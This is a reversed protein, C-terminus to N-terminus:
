TTGEDTACAILITRHTVEHETDERRALERNANGFLWRDHPDM